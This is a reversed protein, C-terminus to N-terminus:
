SRNTDDKKEMTKFITSRIEKETLSDPLKDNFELVKKRSDGLSYGNTILFMGYRLITHNRNGKMADELLVRELGTTSGVGSSTLMTNREKEKTTEPILDSIEFLKEGESYWYEGKAGYYMRSSDKCSEDAPVGLSDYVNSMFRSYMESELKITRDTIFVIRFRDCTLGNKDKQHSKTTALLCKYNAFMLKATEFKMGDDIDIIILNQKQKYNGKTRHGGEFTGASYMLEPNCVAEHLLEFPVKKPKFGKALHKSISITINNVDTKPVEAFSYFEVGEVEKVRFLCDNEYGFARALSLLERKQTQTGKFWQQKALDVDSTKSRGKIFSFAREYIPPQNFVKNFSLGSVEAVYIAQEVYEIGIDSQNSVFAYVGALRTAKWPRSILELREQEQINKTAEVIDDCKIQYEALRIEAEETLMIEKHMNTHSALKGFYDNMAKMKHANNDAKTRNKAVMEVATLKEKEPKTAYACFSRRAFGQSLDDMLSKETVGGDFVLAPSSYGLFNSPVGKVAVVSETKLMRASTDGDEYSSLMLGLLERLKPYNVGLEDIVLNIAGIRYHSSTVRAKSVGAETGSSIRYSFPSVMRMEEKIVAEVDECEEDVLEMTRQEWYKLRHKDHGKKMKASFSDIFIRNLANLSVDKGVGSEGFIYGYFNLPKTTGDYLKLKARLNSSVEAFAYSVLTLILNQPVDPKISLVLEMVDKVLPNLKEKDVKM